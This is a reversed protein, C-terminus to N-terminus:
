RNRGRLALTLEGPVPADRPLQAQYRAMRAHTGFEAGFVEILFDSAGNVVKPADKFTPAANVYAVLRIARLLPELSGLVAKALALHKLAMLRASEYGEEVTLERGLQGPKPIYDEGQEDQMTGYTGSLYLVDGHVIGPVFNGTAAPPNPIRIGIDLLRQEFKDM